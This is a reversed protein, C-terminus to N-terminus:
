RLCYTRSYFLAGNRDTQVVAPLRPALCLWNEAHSHPRHVPAILHREVLPEGRRRLYPLAVGQGSRANRVTVRAYVDFHNLSVSLPENRM